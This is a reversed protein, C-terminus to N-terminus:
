GDVCGENLQASCADASSRHRRLSRWHLIRFTVLYMVVGTYLQAVLVYLFTTGFVTLILMTLLLCNLWFAGLLARLRMGVLGAHETPERSFALLHLGVLPLSMAFEETLNTTIWVCARPQFYAVHLAFAPLQLWTPSFGFALKGIGLALGPAILALGLWRCSVPLLM